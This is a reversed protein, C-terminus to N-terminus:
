RFLLPFLERRVFFSNCRNFGIREYGYKGAMWHLTEATDQVIHGTKLETGLLWDPIPNPSSTGISYCRDMHECVIMAPRCGADLMQRMIVSDSGDIDIVAIDVTQSAWDSWRLTKSIVAKPYREYLLERRTDDIEVLRCWPPYAEYLKQITIPLSQGDGAGYEIYVGDETGIAGETGIADLIAPILGQEGFQWGSLHDKMWEFQHCQPQFELPYQRDKDVDLAASRGNKQRSEVDDNLTMKALARQYEEELMKERLSGM